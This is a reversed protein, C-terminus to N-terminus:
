HPALMALSPGRGAGEIRAILNLRAPNAGILECEVGASGLYDALLEAAPTENGPPNSTDLRILARTLDLVEAQLGREAKGGALAM